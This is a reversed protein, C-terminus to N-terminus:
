IRKNKLFSSLKESRVKYHLAKHNLLNVLEVFENIEANDQRKAWVLLRNLKRNDSDSLVM